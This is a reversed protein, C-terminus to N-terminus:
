ARTISLSRVTRVTHIKGQKDKYTMTMRVKYTGVGRNRLDVKVTRHHSHLRKGRLSARVKLLKWGKVSPAHITRMRNGFLRTRFVHVTETVGNKGAAGNAGNKGDTGNNGNVGNTGNKGDTGNQGEDGKAGAPGPAPENLPAPNDVHSSTTTVDDVLFGSGLTLPAATGATRILLRDSPSPNREEFDRYYNEWSGARVKQDGDIFVRVVDNDDGKVFTTEIKVSHPVTRDLTAIDQDAFSADAFLVHVGDGRDEFRVRSMRSGLGEDPSFTVGLGQTYTQPAQITFENVLRNNADNESAPRTVPVSHPMDGFSGSTFANSIRLAKGGGAPVVAQDVNTNVAQWGGQSDVTGDTFDDFTTTVTDASATGALALSAAVAAGSIISKRM